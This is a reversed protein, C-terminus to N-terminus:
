TSCAGQRAVCSTCALKWAASTRAWAPPPQTQSHAPGAPPLVGGRPARQRAGEAPLMMAQVAVAAAAVIEFAVAAVEAALLWPPLPPLPAAVAKSLRTQPHYHLTFIFMFSFDSM